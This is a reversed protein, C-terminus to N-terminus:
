NKKVISASDEIGWIFSVTIAISWHTQHESPSGIRERRVKGGIDTGM